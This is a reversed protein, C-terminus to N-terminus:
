GPRAPRGLVFSPGHGPLRRVAHDNDASTEAPDAHGQRELLRADLVEEHDVPGAVEAPGPPVVGVGAEGTVHRRVQVREREPRAPPAAAKRRPLLDQGVQVRQGALTPEARMQAEARADGGGVEIFAAGYPVEHELIAAREPCGGHDGRDPLEVPGGQWEARHFCSTSRAPSRTATTPVPALAM